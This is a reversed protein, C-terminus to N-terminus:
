AMQSLDCNSYRSTASWIRSNIGAGLVIGPSGGFRAGLGAGRTRLSIQILFIASLGQGLFALSLIATILGTKAPSPTGCSNAQIASTSDVKSGRARLGTPATPM